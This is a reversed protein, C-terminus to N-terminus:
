RSSARRIEDALLNAAELAKAYSSLSGAEVKRGKITVEGRKLEEYSVHCVVNGTRNPYEDSYDVVPALIDRDRVCTKALV